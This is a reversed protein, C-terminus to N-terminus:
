MAEVQKKEAAVEQMRKQIYGQGAASRKLEDLTMYKIEGDIKVEIRDPEASEDTEDDATEADDSSGDEPAAAETEDDTEAYDQPEQELTEQDDATDEAEPAEVPMLLKQAAIELQDTTEV